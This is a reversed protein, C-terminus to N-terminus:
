VAVKLSAVTINDNPLPENEEHYDAIFAEIALKMESMTEEYTEGQVHCGQFAPCQAFFGGEECPEIIITFQYEKKLKSV